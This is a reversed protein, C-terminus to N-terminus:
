LFIVMSLLFSTATIRATYSMQLFLVVAANYRVFKDDLARRFFKLKVNRLHVNYEVLQFVVPIEFTDLGVAFAFCHVYNCKFLLALSEFTFHYLAPALQYVRHNHANYKCRQACNYGQDDVLQKASLPLVIYVSSDRM